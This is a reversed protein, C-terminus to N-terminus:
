RQREEKKKKEEVKEIQRKIEREGNIEREIDCKSRERERDGM